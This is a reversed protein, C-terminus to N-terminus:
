FIHNEYKCKQNRLNLCILKEFNFFREEFITEVAIENGVYCEPDIVFCFIFITAEYKRFVYGCSRIYIQFLYFPESFEIEERMYRHINLCRSADAFVLFEHPAKWKQLRKRGFIVIVNKIYMYNTIIHSRAFLHM